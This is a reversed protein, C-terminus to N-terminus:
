VYEGGRIECDGVSTKIPRRPALYSAQRGLKRVQSPLLCDVVLFEDADQRAATALKDGARGPAAGQEACGALVTMGLALLLATSRIPRFM